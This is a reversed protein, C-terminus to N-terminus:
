KANMEKYATGIDQLYQDGGMSRWQAIVAPWDSAPKQGTLINLKNEAIFTDLDKQINVSKWGSTDYTYLYGLKWQYDLADIEKFLNFQNVVAVHNRIPVDGYAPDFLVSGFSGPYKAKTLDNDPVGILNFTKHTSDAYEWDQGEVGNLLTVLGEYGVAWNLFEVSKEPHETKANICFLKIARQGRLLVSAGPGQINLTEFAIKSNPNNALVANATTLRETYWFAYAGFVDKAALERAQAPQCTYTEKWIYDQKYWDQLTSLMLEYNPDLIPVNYNGKDDIWDSGGHVLFYQELSLLSNTWASVFLPIEDNTGNGNLDTAKVAKMYEVFEDVTSPMTIGLADVWDTRISLTQTSGVAAGGPVGYLTGNLTAWAKIDAPVIEDNTINSGYKDLYDNLPLIDGALAKPGWSAAGFDQFIDFPEGSAFKLGLKQTYSDSVTLEFNVIVNTKEKVYDLVRQEDETGKVKGLDLSLITLEVPEEPAQVTATTAQAATTAASTAATTTAATTKAATAAATTQAATTASTPSTQTGSACSAFMLLMCAAIGLSLIRKAMSYNRKKVSVMGRRNQKVCYGPRDDNHVIVYLNDMRFVRM